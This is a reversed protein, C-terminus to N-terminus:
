RPLSFRVRDIEDDMVPWYSVIEFKHEFQLLEFAYLTMIEGAYTGDHVLLKTDETSESAHLVTFHIEYQERGNYEARTWLTGEHLRNKLSKLLENMPSFGFPIEVCPNIFSSSM